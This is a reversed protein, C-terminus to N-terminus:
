AFLIPCSFSSSSCGGGGGGGLYNSTKINEKSGLTTSPSNKFKNNSVM